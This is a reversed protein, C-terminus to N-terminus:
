LASTPHRPIGYFVSQTTTINLAFLHGKESDFSWLRHKISNM